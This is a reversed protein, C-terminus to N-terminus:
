DEFVFDTLPHTKDIWPPKYGWEKRMIDRMIKGGLQYKSGYVLYYLPANTQVDRILIAGRFPYNTKLRETIYLRLFGRYDGPDLQKWKNSGFLRTLCEEIKQSTANEPNCSIYGAERMIGEVSLNLLIETRPFKAIKDITESTLQYCVFGSKRYILGDPDVFCFVFKGGANIKSLIEDIKENCDGHFLHINPYRKTHQKLLKYRESDIEVVYCPFNPMISAATLVSGPCARKDVIDFVQGTGGHTDIYAFNQYKNSFRECAGLYKQLITYKKRSHPKIQILGNESM